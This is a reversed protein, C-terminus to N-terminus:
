AKEAARTLVGAVIDTNQATQILWRGDVRAIVLLLIGHRPQGVSGDPEIQGNLEWLVHAAAIDPGLFNVKEVKGTLVSDRLFTAHSHLHAAQIEARNKWWMGVVNVFDADPAFLAAFATMDHRNWAADFADAVAAIAAHDSSSGPSNLSTPATQINM